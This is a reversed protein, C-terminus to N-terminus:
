RCDAQEVSGRTTDGQGFRALKVQLAALLDQTQHLDGFILHLLLVTTRNPLQPNM